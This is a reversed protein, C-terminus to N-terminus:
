FKEKANDKKSGQDHAPTHICLSNVLSISNHELENMLLTLLPYLPKRSNSNEKEITIQVNM